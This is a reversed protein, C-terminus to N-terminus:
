SITHINDIKWAVHELLFYMDTQAMEQGFYHFFVTYSGFLELNGLRYHLLDNCAIRALSAHTVEIALQCGNTTSGCTADDLLRIYVQPKCTM